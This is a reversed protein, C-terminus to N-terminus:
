ETSGKVVKLSNVINTTEMYLATLESGHTAMLLPSYGIIYICESHYRSLCNRCGAQEVELLGQKLKEVGLMRKRFLKFSQGEQCWRWGGPFFRNHMYPDM